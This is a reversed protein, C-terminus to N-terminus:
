RRTPDPGYANAGRAGPTFGLYVFLALGVASALTMAPLGVGLFRGLSGVLAGAALVAFGIWGNRGLDHFRRVALSVMIWFGAALAPVSLAYFGPPSADRVAMAAAGLAAVALGAIASRL